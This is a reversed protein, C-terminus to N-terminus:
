NMDQCEDVIVMDYNILSKAPMRKAIIDGIGQDTTTQSYYKFCFSHYSHVEVNTLGNRQFHLRGQLKLFKSYTLVLIRKDRKKAAIFQQMTTKGGGAVSDIVVNSDDIADLVAQQQNSPQLKIM